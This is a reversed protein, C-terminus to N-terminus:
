LNQALVAYGRKGNRIYGELGNPGSTTGFGVYEKFVFEWKSKGPTSRVLEGMCCMNKDPNKRGLNKVNGVCIPNGSEDTLQIDVDVINTFYDRWTTGTFILRHVSM